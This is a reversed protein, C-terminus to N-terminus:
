VRRTAPQSFRMVSWETVLSFQVYGTFRVVTNRESVFRWPTQAFMEKYAQALKRKYTIFHDLKELQACGLAANLNPM